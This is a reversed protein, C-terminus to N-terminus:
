NDRQERTKFMKEYHILQQIKSVFSTSLEFFVYKGLFKKSFVQYELTSQANQRYQVLASEIRDKVLRIAGYMSNNPKDVTTSVFIGSSGQLREHRWSTPMDTQGNWSGFFSQFLNWNRGDWEVNSRSFQLCNGKTDECRRPARNEPHARLGMDM